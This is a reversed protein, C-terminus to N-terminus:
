WVDLVYAGFKISMEERKLILASIEQIALEGKEFDTKAFAFSSAWASTDFGDGGNPKSLFLVNNLNPLSQCVIREKDAVRGEQFELNEGNGM